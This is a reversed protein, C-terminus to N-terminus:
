PCPKEQNEPCAQEHKEMEAKLEEDKKEMDFAYQMAQNATDYRDPIIKMINQLSDIMKEGCRHFMEAVESQFCVFVVGTQDAIDDLIDKVEKLRELIYDRAIEENKMRGVRM